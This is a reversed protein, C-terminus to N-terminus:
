APLRSAVADVLRGLGGVLTGFVPGGGAPREALAARVAGTLTHETRCARALQPMTTALSLDDARGAYVGGLMPDVLRDAVQGGLRDDQDVVTGEGGREALRYAAALGSIGGGVVVIRM